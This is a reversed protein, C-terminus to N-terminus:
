RGEAKMREAYKRRWAAIATEVPVSYRAERALSMELQRAKPKKPERSTVKRAITRWSHKM